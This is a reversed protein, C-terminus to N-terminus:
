AQLTHMGPQLEHVQSKDGIRTRLRFPVDCMLEITRRGGATEAAGVEMNITGYAFRLGEITHSAESYPILELERRQAHPRLGMYVGVTAQICLALALPANAGSSGDHLPAPVDRDPDYALYLEGSDALVKAMRKLHAECARQAPAHRHLAFMAEWAPLNFDPRAVGGPAGDRKRYDGEGASVTAYPHAREFQTPDALRKLMAEARTRPAIGSWVAWLGALTKVPLHEGHEDLDYYWEDEEHWMLANVRAAVERVAWELEGALDRRDLVRAMEALLRANLAYMGCADLWSAGGALSPVVRGGLMFRGTPHLTYAEPTGAVLGNRKRQHEERYLFDAHLLAFAHALRDRNNHLKFHEWEALAFLPAAPQGAASGTALELRSPVFGRDDLAALFPDTASSTGIGAWRLGLTAFAADWAEV